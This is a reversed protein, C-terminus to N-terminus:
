SDTAAATCRRSRRRWRAPTAGRCQWPSTPARTSSTARPARRAIQPRRPDRRRSEAVAAAELEALAATLEHAEGSAAGGRRGVRAAGGRHARAPRARRRSGHRLRLARRGASPPAREAMGLADAVLCAHQGGAGGFCCLTSGTVDHGRQTSIRKIARAMTDCAVRIFGDALQEPAPPEVGAARMSAAVAALARRAAEADIGGPRRARVRAPLVVAAAQGRGRQLRDGDAARGQRLLRAGPRRRRQAPRRPLARGRVLLGLRRRRRRHPHAADAGAPARRRGRVRAASTSAPSTRSTPRRAAWTSPSSGSSAPAAARTRGGRRHRRRAGLPHTRAASSARRRDARRAVAHLAPAGGGAAARRRRHLAAPHPLPLRRRGHDRRPRRAEDAPQDRPCPSRRSAPPARWSPWAGSTSPTATATCCLSPWPTPLRRPARRRLDRRAAEEDLAVCWPETPAWANTSRSARSAYVPAPLRIDLAFIDPRDQYGIRLADGFGRTTVLLTPEGRRELLANTAVTTGM